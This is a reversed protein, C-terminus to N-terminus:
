CGRTYYWVRPRGESTLYRIWAITVRSKVEDPSLCIDAPQALRVKLWQGRVELPHMIYDVNEGKRIGLTLEKGRPELFFRPQQDPLFFVRNGALVKKWLLHKLHTSDLSAWGRYPADHRDFGLIVRAWSDRVALSDIPVGAEEYGFEVVNPRLPKSAAVGYRWAIGRETEHYLFAGIVKAKSDPRARVLVSDRLSGRADGPSNALYVIGIGRDVRGRDMGAAWTVAPLGHPSAQGHLQPAVAALAAGSTVTLYFSIIRM